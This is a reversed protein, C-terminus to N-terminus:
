KSAPRAPLSGGSSAPCACRHSQESSWPLRPFGSPSLPQTTTSLTTSAVAGARLPPSRRMRPTPSMFSRVYAAGTAGAVFIKM